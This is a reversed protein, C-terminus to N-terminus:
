PPNPDEASKEKSEDKGKAPEGAKAAKTPEGEKAKAPPEGAAPATEDDDAPASLAKAAHKAIREATRAAMQEDLSLAPTAPAAPENANAQPQAASQVEDAM